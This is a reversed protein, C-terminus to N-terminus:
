QSNIKHTSHSAEPIHRTGMDKLLGMVAHMYSPLGRPNVVIGSVAAAYACPVICICILGTGVCALERVESIARPMRIGCIEKGGFQELLAFFLDRDDDTGGGNGGGGSQTGDYGHGYWEWCQSGEVEEAFGVGIVDGDSSGAAALEM